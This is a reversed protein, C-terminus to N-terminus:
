AVDMFAPVAAERSVNNIAYEWAVTSDLEDVLLNSNSLRPQVGAGKLRTQQDFTDDVLGKINKRLEFLREARAM